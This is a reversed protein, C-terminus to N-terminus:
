EEGRAALKAEKQASYWLLRGLLRAYLLMCTVTGLAGIASLVLYSSLMFSGAVTGVLAILISAMYFVIWGESAVKWSRWTHPSVPALVSAEALMSYMVIPFLAIWSLMLPAAAMLSAVRPDLGSGLLGATVFAGPLGSLLAAFPVFVMPYFWEVINWDPWTEVDNSGNATDQVVALFGTCFPALWLGFMVAFGMACFIAFLQEQPQQANTSYAVAKNGMAMAGALWLSFLLWRALTNPLFLFGVIGLVFPSRKWAEPQRPDLGEGFLDDDYRGDYLSEDPDPKPLKIPERPLEVREVPESIRFEEDVEHGEPELTVTAKAASGKAAGQKAAPQGPTALDPDSWGAARVAPDLAKLVRYEGRPEVMPRYAPREAAEGLQIDDGADQSPIPPKPPPRASSSASTGEFGKPAKILNVTHCDPCKIQQGIQEVPAYMRTQCLRCVVPVQTVKPKARPPPPPLLNPDLVEDPARPRSPARGGTQSSGGTGQGKEGTPQDGVGSERARVGAERNGVAPRHAPQTAAAASGLDLPVFDPDDVPPPLAPLPKSPTAALPQLPPVKPDVWNSLKPKPKELPQPPPPPAAVPKKLFAPRAAAPPAPKQLPAPPLATQGQVAPRPGQVEAPPQGLQFGQGCKPCNVRSGAALAPAKIQAQCHPCAIKPPVHSTSM